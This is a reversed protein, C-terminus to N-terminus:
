TEYGHGCTMDYVSFISCLLNWAFLSRAFNLSVKNVLWLMRPDLKCLHTWILQPTKTSEITIMHRKVRTVNGFSSLLASKRVRFVSNESEKSTFLIWDVNRFGTDVDSKLWSSMKMETLVLPWNWWDLSLTMRWVQNWNALLFVKKKVSAFSSSVEAAVPPWRMTVLQGGSWLLCASDQLICASNSINRLDLLLHTESFEEKM